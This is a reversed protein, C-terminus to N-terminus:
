LFRTRALSRRSVLVYRDCGPRLWPSRKSRDNRAASL